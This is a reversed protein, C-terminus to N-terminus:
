NTKACPPVPINGGASMEHLGEINMITIINGNVSILGSRQLNRLIRSFSEPQISLRSAIVNKAAPLEIEPISNSPRPTQHLLFNIFRLTANQLTLADIENLQKKLWASMDALLRLCTDTSESLIKRFVSSQFAIVESAELASANVPYNQGDMFMVAEGFTDKPSVIHIIKENGDPSLLFLKICGSRLLFFHQAHQQAEFLHEGEALSIVRASQIVLDLQAQNLGSFLHTNWLEESTVTKATM